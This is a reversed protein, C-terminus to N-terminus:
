LFFFFVGFEKNFSHYQYQFECETVLFFDLNNNDKPETNKMSKIKDNKEDLLDVIVLKQEKFNLNNSLIMLPFNLM